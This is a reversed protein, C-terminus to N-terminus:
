AESSLMMGAFQGTWGANAGGVVALPAEVAIPAWVFSEGNIGLIALFQEESDTMSGPQPFADGPTAPQVSAFTANGRGIISLDVWTNMPLTSNLRYFNGSSFLTINPTLMLMSDSGSILTADHSGNTGVIGDVFLRLSLTYDRGKVTLPTNVTCQSSIQFTNGSASPCTTTGDYNNGSSDALKAQKAAARIRKKAGLNYELITSTKSPIAHDLNQAPIAAHLVPFVDDFEEELLDGGWQKDALAPIGERLAYYSESYVTANPGFDNWLAAIAGLVFPNSREPNNTSNHADFINPAWAGNTAPDGHFTKTVNVQQPYSGSFKNVVYFTDDSNVVSYNNDLYDFLPNDEFFEWHQVSTNTFINQEFTPSPPFTGWIRVSKNFNENIFINMSNVYLNYADAGATYEDAGLHVTKVHFWDMFTSWITQMTPITDPNSINLLSLDTSLGLDPKWQVIPLAHGPAEIEPFITVGRAVCQTQIMEFQDQTYSENKHKNLGAVAPSDSWLRFRAYLELTRERTYIEVNNFLNDSLHLHLINQKFFSIYSCMDIIFQPPYFHRGADIFIGRTQWGPSDVASGQPLTGNALVAQQIISRTGWWVGLPSAGTITIGSSTVEYSYGETSVQGGVYTFSSNTDITLFISNPKAAAGNSVAVNKIGFVDSLDSAFTAAFESLTPPILTEGNDDVTQAFQPDVIISQVSSISFEGDSTTNFSITPITTLRSSYVAVQLIALICLHTLRFVAM